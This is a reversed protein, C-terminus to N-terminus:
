FELSFVGSFDPLVRKLAMAHLGLAAIAVVNSLEHGDVQIYRWADTPSYVDLDQGGGIGWGIVRGPPPWAKANETCTILMAVVTLIIRKKM